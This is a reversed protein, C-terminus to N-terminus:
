NIIKNYIGGLSDKVNVIIILPDDEKSFPLM